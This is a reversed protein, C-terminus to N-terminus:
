LKEVAAKVDALFQTLTALEEQKAEIIKEISKEDVPVLLPVPVGTTQDFRRDTYHAIGNLKVVKATGAAKSILYNTLDVPVPRDM